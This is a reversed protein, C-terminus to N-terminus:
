IYKRTWVDLSIIKNMADEFDVGVMDLYSKITELRPYNFSEMDVMVEERTLIGERIQNSKFTDHETFGVASLYIFNYFASTGDIRLIKPMLGIM